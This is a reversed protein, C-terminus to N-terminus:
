AQGKRRKSWAVGNLILMAVLYPIFFFVLTWYVWGADIYDGMQLFYVLSIYIVLPVIAITLAKIVRQFNLPRHFWLLAAIIVIPLVASYIYFSM